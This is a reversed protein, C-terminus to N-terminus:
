LDAYAVEGAHIDHRSRANGGLPVFPFRAVAKKQSWPLVAIEVEQEPLIGLHDMEHSSLRIVCGEPAPEIRRRGPLPQLMLAM